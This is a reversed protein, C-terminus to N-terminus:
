YNFFSAWDRMDVFGDSGGFTYDETLWKTLFFGIEPTGIVPEIRIEDIDNLPLPTMPIVRNPDHRNMFDPHSTDLIWGRCDNPDEWFNPDYFPQEEPSLPTWEDFRVKENPDNMLDVYTDIDVPYFADSLIIFVDEDDDSAVVTCAVEIGEPLVDSQVYAVFEQGVCGEQADSTYVIAEYRVPTGFRYFTEWDNNNSPGIKTRVEAHDDYVRILNLSYELGNPPSQPPDNPDPKEVIAMTMMATSASGSVAAHAATSVPGKATPVTPPVFDDPTVPCSSNPYM